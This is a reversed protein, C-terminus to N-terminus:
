LIANSMAPRASPTACVTPSVDEGQGGQEARLLQALRRQLADQGGAAAGHLALGRPLERALPHGRPSLGAFVRDTEAETPMDVLVYVFVHPLLTCPTKAEIKKSACRLGSELAWRALLPM